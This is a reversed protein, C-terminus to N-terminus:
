LAATYIRIIDERTIARPNQAQMLPFFPATITADAMQPIDTESIGLESLTQPMGLDRSIRKVAEMAKQAADMIHLGEIKEGMLEAIKAFRAPCAILNFQMTYPLLLICAKGHTIHVRKVIQPNLFHAMGASNMACACMAMSAAISLNYRAEPHESGKVYAFRLNDSILKIAAEALTDAIINTTSSTYAEIAHILADLASDATVEQPLSLTLEPDIIVANAFLHNDIIVIEEGMDDHHVSVMSWESGTGATTPVLIKTLVKKIPKRQVLDQFSMNNPAMISAAKVTDMISGGGVGILLDYNKNKVIQTCKEVISVPAFPLCGDFIDFRCGVKELSSKVNDILGAKVANADTIIIVNTGGLEKVLGGIDTSRGMGALTFPVYIFFNSLM